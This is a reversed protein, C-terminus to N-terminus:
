STALKVEGLVRKDYNFMFFYRQDTSKFAGMNLDHMAKYHCRIREGTPTIVDGVDKDLIFNGVVKGHYAYGNKFHYITIMVLQESRAQLSKGEEILRKKDVNKLLKEIAENKDENARQKRKQTLMNRIDELSAKGKLMLGINELDRLDSVGLDDPDLELKLVGNMWFGMIMKKGQYLRGFGHFQDNQFSGMFFTGDPELLTGQGDKMFNEDLCGTYSNGNKYKVKSTGVMKGDQVLGEFWEIRDMFGMLDFRKGGLKDHICSPFADKHCYVFDNQFYGDYTLGGGLSLSNFGQLANLPSSTNQGEIAAFLSPINSVVLKNDSLECNLLLKGDVFLKSKGEIKDGKWPGLIYSNTGPVRLLGNDGGDETTLVKGDSFAVKVNSILTRNAEFSKIFPVESRFDAIMQAGMFAGKEYRKSVYIGNLLDVEIYLGDPSEDAGYKCYSFVGTKNNLMMIPVETNMRPFMIINRNTFNAPDYQGMDKMIIIDSLKGETVVIHVETTKDLKVVGRVLNMNQGFTGEITVIGSYLDVTQNSVVGNDVTAKVSLPFSTAQFTVDGDIANSVFNATLTGYDGLRQVGHGVRQLNRVDGEFDALSHEIKIIKQM